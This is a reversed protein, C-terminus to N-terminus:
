FLFVNKEIREFSSLHKKAESRLRRLRRTREIMAERNHQKRVRLDITHAQLSYIEGEVAAIHRSFEVKGTLSCANNATIHGREEECAEFGLPALPALLSAVIGADPGGGEGKVTILLPM